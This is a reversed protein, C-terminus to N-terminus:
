LLTLEEVLQALGSISGADEHISTLNMEVSHVINVVPVGPETSRYFINGSINTMINLRLSKELSQRGPKVELTM